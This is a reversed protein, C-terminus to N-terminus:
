SEEIRRKNKHASPLKKRLNRVGCMQYANLLVRKPKNWTCADIYLKKRDEFTLQEREMKKERAKTNIKTCTHGYRSNM